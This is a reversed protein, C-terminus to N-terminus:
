VLKLVDDASNFLENSEIVRVVMEADPNLCYVQSWRHHGDIIYEIGDVRAVVLPTNKILM